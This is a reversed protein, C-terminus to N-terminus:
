MCIYGIPRIFVLVQVIIWKSFFYLKKNVYIKILLIDMTVYDNDQKICIEKLIVCCTVIVTENKSFITVGPPDANVDETGANVNKQKPLNKLYIEVM